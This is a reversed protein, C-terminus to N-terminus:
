PLQTYYVAYMTFTTLAGDSDVVTFTIPMNKCVSRAVIVVSLPYSSTMGLIDTRELPITDNKVTSDFCKDDYYSVNYIRLGWPMDDDALAVYGLHQQGGAKEYSHLRYEESEMAAGTLKDFTVNNAEDGTSRLLSRSGVVGDSSTVTNYTKSHLASTSPTTYAVEESEDHEDSVSSGVFRNYPTALVTFSDNVQMKINSAANSAKGRITPAQNVVEINVELPSTVNGDSDTFTLKFTFNNQLEYSKVGSPSTAVYTTRRNVLFNIFNAEPIANQQLKDKVPTTQGNNVVDRHYDMYMIVDPMYATDVGYSSGPNSSYRANGARLMSNYEEIKNADTTYEHINTSSAFPSILYTGSELKFMDNLEVSTMAVLEQNTMAAFDKDDKLDKYDKEWFINGSSGNEGSKKLLSGGVIARSINLAYPTGIGLSVDLKKGPRIVNGDEDTISELNDSLRAATGKIAIRIELAVYSAAGFGDGHDDYILVKLPYYGGGLSADYVLGRAKYYDGIKVTNDGLSTLLDANIVTKAKPTISLRTGDASLGVSFYNEYGENSVGAYIGGNPRYNENVQDLTVNANLKVDYSGFYNKISEQAQSINKNQSQKETSVYTFTDGSHDFVRTYGTFSGLRKLSDLSFKAQDSRATEIVGNSEVKDADAYRVTNRITIGSGTPATATTNR